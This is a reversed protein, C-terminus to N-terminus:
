KTECPLPLSRCNRTVRLGYGRPWGASQLAVTHDDLEDLLVDLELRTLENEARPGLM